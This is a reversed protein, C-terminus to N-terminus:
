RWSWEGIKNRLMKMWPPGDGSGSRQIFGKEGLDKKEEVVDKRLM